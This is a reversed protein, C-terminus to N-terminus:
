NVTTRWVICIFPGYQFHMSLLPAHSYNIWYSGSLIVVQWVKGYHEELFRKLKSAVTGMQKPDSSVERTLELFKDTVQAQKSISMTFDIVTISPDVKPCHSLSKVDREIKEVNMEDGNLGLGACFEDLSIRKDHNEDYRQLWEDIQNMNLKKEVCAERLEDIDVFGDENKDMSLFLEIMKEMDSAHVAM